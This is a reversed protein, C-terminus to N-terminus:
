RAIRLLGAIGFVYAVVVLWSDPGLQALARRPRVTLGVAYVSTMIVGIGALWTSNTDVTQLVPKGALLDALLFLTMQVQNGGFIDGMALGVRGLRVARIGTSIEPLATVAALITAGFVVGNIGWATALADGSRELVVGAVLTLAAAAVFALVARRTSAREFRNPRVREAAPPGPMVVQKTVVDAVAQWRESARVKNLTVLGALWVLVIVVSIPSIPGIAVEPPLLPGLLAFSVLIIVFLAEIIPELVKSMSSLPTGSRSVRDLVVLVLTQMAIGGLLNGTAIGLNGRLAASATIAVEPLTGAVGLLILGGIAEGLHLRDDVVDTSDALVLGAVWTVIAAVLFVVVLAPVGLDSM